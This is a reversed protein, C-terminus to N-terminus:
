GGRWQVRCGVYNYKIQNPQILNVAALISFTFHLLLYQRYSIYFTVKERASEIKERNSKLELVTEVGIDETEAVTRMCNEIIENQRRM